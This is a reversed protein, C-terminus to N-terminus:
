QQLESIRISHYMATERINGIAWVIYQNTNSPEFEKDCISDATVFDIIFIIIIAIYIKESTTFNRTFSVCQVGNNISGEINFVDNTCLGSSDMVDPCAGVGARCQFYLSM